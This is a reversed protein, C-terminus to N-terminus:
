VAHRWSLDFACVLMRLQNGTLPITDPHGVMCTATDSLDRLNCNEVFIREGNCDYIVNTQVDPAAAISASFFSLV